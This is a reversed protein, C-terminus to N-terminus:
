VAGGPTLPALSLYAKECLTIGLEIDVSFLSSAKTSAGAENDPKMSLCTGNGLRM